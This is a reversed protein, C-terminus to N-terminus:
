RWIVSLLQSADYCSDIAGDSDDNWATRCGSWIRAIENDGQWEYDKEFIEPRAFRVLKAIQLINKGIVALRQKNDAMLLM